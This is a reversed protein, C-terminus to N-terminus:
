FDLYIFPIYKNLIFNRTERLTSNAVCSGIMPGSFKPGTSMERAGACAEGTFKQLIIHVFAPGQVSFLGV